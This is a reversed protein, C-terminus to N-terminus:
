WRTLYKHAEYPIIHKISVWKKEISVRLAIFRKSHNEQLNSEMQQRPSRTPIALFSLLSEFVKHTAYSFKGHNLFSKQSNNQIKHQM